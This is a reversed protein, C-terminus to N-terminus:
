CFYHIYLIEGWCRDIMISNIWEVNTSSCKKTLVLWISNLGTGASFAVITMRVKVALETLAPANKKGKFALLCCLTCRIDSELRSESAFQTKLRNLPNQLPLFPASFTLLSPFGPVARSVAAFPM